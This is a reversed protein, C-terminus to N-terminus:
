HPLATGAFIVESGLEHAISAAFGQCREKDNNDIM